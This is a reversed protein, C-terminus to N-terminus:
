EAVQKLYAAGEAELIADIQARADAIGQRFFPRAPMRRTGEHVFPAYRINTGVYGRLGDPEVRTTESRRLTGTRVPTRRQSRALAALTVKQMVRERDIPQRLREALEEPTM